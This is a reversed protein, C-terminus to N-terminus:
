RRRRRLAQGLRFMDALKKKISDFLPKFEFPPVADRQTKFIQVTTANIVEWLLQRDPCAKFYDLNIQYAGKFKRAGGDPNIKKILSDLNFTEERVRISVDLVLGKNSDSEVVAFVAVLAVQEQQLLFDAILALADRRSADLYGIGAILWDRYKVKNKIATAILGIPQDSAATGMLRSIVNRDVFPSLYNLAEYDLQQAKSFGDTDTQIGWVLATAIRTRLAQELTSFLGLEKYILGVLTSTASAAEQRIPLDIPVDEQVPVHHDIHVACPINHKIFPVRASQHDAVIYADYPTIDPPEASFRIPIALDAVLQKNQELSVDTTAILTAPIGLTECLIQLAFSAAIGDPDPSGKIVILINRYNKLTALLKKAVLAFPMDM